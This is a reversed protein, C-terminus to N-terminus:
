KQFRSGKEVGTVVWMSRPDVFFVRLAILTAVMMTLFTYLAATLRKAPFTAPIVRDALALLIALAIGALLVLPVTGPTLFCLVTFAFLLFPLVLRGIKYSWYHFWMRNGPGLLQPLYSLLQYNGALTRVKRRFETKVSTSIDWAIADSEMVLRYGKFFATLPLYMDDLLIESPVPVALSRRLAYCPGTAGFISDVDALRARIWTEIRWYLAVAASDGTSVERINLQASVAGVQPDAFCAVLRKLCDKDLTQRVDTLLLIEGTALPFAATLAACKGGAPVELLRIRPDSAAYRRVIDATADTSGDSVVLIDLCEAPYDLALLSDLKQAMYKDGNYVAIVATVSRPTFEKKVPRFRVKALLGLLLPWGFIIYAILAGTIILLWIM